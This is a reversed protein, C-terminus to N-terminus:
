LTIPCDYDFMKTLESLSTIRTVGMPFSMDEGAGKRDVWIGGAFGGFTVAGIADVELNDGVYICQEPPTGVQDAARLYIEPNPKHLGAEESIVISESPIYQGVLPEITNRVTITHNSLIGLRFGCDHLTQLTSLVDEYLFTPLRAYETYVKYLLEEDADMIGLRNLLDGYIRLFDEKKQPYTPLQIIGNQIDAAQTQQARQVARLTCPIGVRQLMITTREDYTVNKGITYGLTFDWDFLVATILENTM